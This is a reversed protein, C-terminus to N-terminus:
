KQDAIRNSDMETLLDYLERIKEGVMLVKQYFEKTNFIPAMDQKQRVIKSLYFNPNYENNAGHLISDIHNDREGKEVWNKHYFALASYYEEEMRKLMEYLTGMQEERKLTEFNPIELQSLSVDKVRQRLRYFEEDASQSEDFARIGTKEGVPSGGM